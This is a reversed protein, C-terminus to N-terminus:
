FGRSLHVALVRRTEPGVKYAESIRGGLIWLVHSEEALLLIHDRQVAPIKEDIFYRKLSKHRGEKDMIFYDGSQRTRLCLKCNITDYDFYKM